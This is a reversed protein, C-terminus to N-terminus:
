EDSLRSGTHFSTPMSAASTPGAYSLRSWNAFLWVSSRGSLIRIDTMVKQVLQGGLQGLRDGIRGPALKSPLERIFRFPVPARELNRIRKSRCTLGAM